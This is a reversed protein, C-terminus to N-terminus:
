DFICRKCLYVELKIIIKKMITESNFFDIKFIDPHYVPIM